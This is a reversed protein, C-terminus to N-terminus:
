NFLIDRRPEDWPPIFQPCETPKPPIELRSFNARNPTEFRLDALYLKGKERYWFPARVFKLQAAAYCNEQFLKKLEERLFRIETTWVVQPHTKSFKMDSSILRLCEEPAYLKSFISVVGRRLKVNIRTPLTEVTVVQWCIPNSPFPSLIVDNVVVGPEEREFRSQISQTLWHSEFCFILVFLTVSAYCVTLRLGEGVKRFLFFLGVTWLTCVLAISLPIYGTFWILGLGSALLTLVGARIYKKSTAYFFLPLLTVWIWPEVIFLMDAFIWQNNFPWFPHVGYQNLFDLFLHLFVGVFALTGIGIWDKREFTTKKWKGYGWVGLLILLAQVPLLILTHTHGRHNLLYQLRNPKLFSCYVIDLDPFNNALLATIWFVLRTKKSVPVDSSKTKLFALGSEATLAGVLSHTINDM